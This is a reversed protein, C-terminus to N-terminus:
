KEKDQNLKSIVGHIFKYQDDDSYMKSLEVYEDVIVKIPTDKYTIEYSAMKLLVKDIKNLRDYTWNKLHPTIYSVLEEEHEIVGEVIQGSFSDYKLELVEYATNKNIALTKNEIQFLVKLAAERDKRRSM